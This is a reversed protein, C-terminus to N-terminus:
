QRSAVLCRIREECAILQSVSESTVRFRRIRRQKRGNQSDEPTPELLDEASIVLRTELAVGPKAEVRDSSTNLESDEEDDKDNTAVRPLTVETEDGRPGEELSASLGTILSRSLELKAGDPNESFLIMTDHFLCVWVDRYKTHHDDASDPPRFGHDSGDWDEILKTSLDKAETSDISEDEKIESYVSPLESLKGRFIQRINARELNLKEAYLNATHSATFYTATIKPKLERWVRNIIVQYLVPIVTAVCALIWPMRLSLAASCGFIAVLACTDFGKARATNLIAQREEHPVRQWAKKFHAEVLEKNFKQRKFKIFKPM